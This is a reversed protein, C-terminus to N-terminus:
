ASVTDTEIKLFIEYKIQIEINVRLKNKEPEQGKDKKGRKGVGQPTLVV